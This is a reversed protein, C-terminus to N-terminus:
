EFDRRAPDEQMDSYLNMATWASVCPTVKHQHLRLEWKRSTTIVVTERRNSKLHALQALHWRGHNGSQLQSVPWSSLVKLSELRGPVELAMSGIVPFRGHALSVRIYLLFCAKLFFLHSWVPDHYHRTRSFKLVNDQCNIMFPWQTCKTQMSTDTINYTIENKKEKGTM